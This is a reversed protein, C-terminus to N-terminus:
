RARRLENLERSEMWKVRMGSQKEDGDHLRVYSCGRGQELQRLIGLPEGDLNVNAIGLLCNWSLELIYWTSSQLRSAMELPVYPGENENQASIRGNAQIRLRFMGGRGDSPRLFSESLSINVGNFEHDLMFRIRLEGIQSLPYNWTLGSPPSDAKKNLHMVKNGDNQSEVVRVGSATAQCNRLGERWEEKASPSTLWEPSIRVSQFSYTEYWHGEGNPVNLYGLLINGDGLEELWPYCVYDDPSQNPKIRAVERYGRWVGDTDRIAAVLSQRARSVGEDIPECKCNNWCMVIRGDRLKLLGAPSNSSIFSTPQVESWSEGHDISYSEFFRGSQTRIIMWIRGDPLEVTVPEVAGGEVAPSGIDLILDNGANRWTLGHDDSLIATSVFKGTKRKSLYSFPVIIRGSALLTVANLSGTYNHGYDLVKPDSWTDGGDESRIHYMEITRDEFPVEDDWDSLYFGIVHANGEADVFPVQNLDTTQVAKEMPPFQVILKPEGWTRGHDVSKRCYLNQSITADRWQDPLKGEPYFSLVSGDPLVTFTGLKGSFQIVEPQILDVM